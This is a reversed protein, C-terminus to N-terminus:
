YIRKKEGVDMWKNCRVELAAAKYAIGAVRM